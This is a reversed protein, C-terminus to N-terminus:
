FKGAQKQSLCISTHRQMEQYNISNSSKGKKFNKYDKMTYTNNSVSISMRTVLILKFTKM